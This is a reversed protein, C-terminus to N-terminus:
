KNLTVVHKVVKTCVDSGMQMLGALWVCRCVFEGVSMCLCMFVYM